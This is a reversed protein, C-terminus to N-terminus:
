GRMVRGTRGRFARPSMREHRSARTVAREQLTRSQRHSHSPQRAQDLPGVNTVIGRLTPHGPGVVTRGQEAM